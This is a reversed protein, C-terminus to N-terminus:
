LVLDVMVAEQHLDLAGEVAVVEPIQLPMLLPGVRMKLVVLVVEVLVVLVLLSMVGLEVVAVALTHKVPDQKIITPPDTVVLEVLVMIKVVAPMVVLLVPVAAVQVMVLVVPLLAVMIEKPLVIDERTDLVLLIVVGAALVAVGLVEKDELDLATIPEVAVEVMLRPILKNLHHVLIVIAVTVEKAVVPGVLVM